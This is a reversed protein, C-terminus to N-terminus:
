PAAQRSDTVWGDLVEAPLPFVPHRDIVLTDPDIVLAAGETPIRRHQLFALVDAALVGAIVASTAVDPDVVPPPSTDLQRWVAALEAPQRAAALRRARTDHYSATRWPVSFPGLVFRDGERHCRHWALGTRSCDADFEQWARDPLWCACAVVVGAGDLDAGVWSANRRVRHGAAALVEAVQRAILGEGLVAAPPGDPMLGPASGESLLGRERLALLATDLLHSDGAEVAAAGYTVRGSLLRELAAGVAPPLRLREYTGAPGALRWGGDTGPYLHHGTALRAQRAPHSEQVVDAKDLQTL